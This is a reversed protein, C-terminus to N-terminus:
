KISELHELAEQWSYCCKCLDYQNAGNQVVTVGWIKDGSMGRGETIEAVGNPIKAFGVLDRTIFNKGKVVKAFKAALEAYGSDYPTLVKM